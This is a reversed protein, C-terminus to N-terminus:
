FVGLEVCVWVTMNLILVTMLEVSIQTGIRSMKYEKTHKPEITTILSTNLTLLFLSTKTSLEGVAVSYNETSSSFDSSTLLIKNTNTKLSM